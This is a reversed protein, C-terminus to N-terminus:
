LCFQVCAGWEPSLWYSVAHGTIENATTVIVGDMDM